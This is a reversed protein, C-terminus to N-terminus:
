EQCSLYVQQGKYVIVKNIWWNAMIWIIIDIVFINTMSINFIHWLSLNVFIFGLTMAMIFVLVYHQSMGTRMLKHHIHNRDAKFIHAKHSLRVLSVRVVDFTPIILLTYALMMSELNFHKVNPNDMTFKVFLFGLIFGLTLSGSDGMFIKRNKAPDGLINFYLFPVLIGILGAILISYTFIGEHLYCILFGTLAVLSIGASLGDIGDILNIANCVFVIIFVTLTSGLWFPIEYIGFFGYLNNIYLNFFPLISAAIIQVAFKSKAGLGVIDDITGIGYILLLSVLFAITWSNVTVQECDCSQNYVILAVISAILMSPLFSIGGLRPIANKHVKRSDPIDYLGKQKCFNLTLPIFALGCAVSALFAIIILFLYRETM